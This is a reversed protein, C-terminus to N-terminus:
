SVSIAERLKDLSKWARLFIEQVLDEVEASNHCLGYGFRYLGSSFSGVLTEFHKQKAKMDIFVPQGRLDKCHGIDIIVLSGNM